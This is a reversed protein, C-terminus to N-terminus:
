VSPLETREFIPIRRMHINVWITKSNKRTSIGGLAKLCASFSRKGIRSSDKVEGTLDHKYKKKERDPLGEGHHCASYM